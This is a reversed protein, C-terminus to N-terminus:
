LPSKGPKGWTRADDEREDQDRWGRQWHARMRPHRYPCDHIPRDAARATVGAKEADSLDRGTPEPIGSPLSKISIKIAKAM